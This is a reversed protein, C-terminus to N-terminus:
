FLTYILPAAGTTAFFILLSFLLLLLVIPLMWWKRNEALFQLFERAVGPPKAESAREFDTKTSV